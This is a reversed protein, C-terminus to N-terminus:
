SELGFNLLEAQVAELRKKKGTLEEREAVVVPDEALYAACRASSNPGGIGLKSLLFEQLRNSFMTLFKDEIAMPVDDIVRKYAVKFYARVEAMVELEEEYMDPPRLKALDELTLSGYGLVALATLAQHEARRREEEDLEQNAELRRKQLVTSDSIRDELSKASSAAAGNAPAASKPAPSNSPAGAGFPSPQGFAPQAATAAPPSYQFAQPAQGKNGTNQTAGGHSSGPRKQAAPAASTSGNAGEIKRRKMAPEQIADANGQRASKYMSLFKDKSAQYYHKNQTFPTKERDLIDKVREWAVEKQVELLAKVVQLMRGKLEHYREFRQQVLKSLTADFARQVDVFCKRCDLEWSTQFERILSVKAGYPVNGPLEKGLSRSIHRRVDQLTVPARPAPLEADSDTLDVFDARGDDDEDDSEAAAYRALGARSSPPSPSPVFPPATGRIDHKFIAYTRRNQQVLSATDPGGDVYAAVDRCVDTVLTLVFSTPEATIAPPLEKLRQLCATLQAAAESRLKPMTDYIIQTLLRSLNAVLQATGFRQRQSSKSWPSHERFFAMEAERAEANSIGRAREDDDPQRTCYYGHKLPFRRGEIVDLWNDRAKTSGPPLTDPKTMVGITRLGSPDVQKALQMAKQNEIDDSMPLTVLILCNGKIHSKVLDEVLQVTEASANQIIGPLDVFALDTMEPGSIDMCVANRSFELANKLGRLEELSMGVFKSSVVAPNLVAAQARRLMLEVQAKDHLAPGFKQESVIECPRGDAAFEERISIQCTWPQAASALRCEMPCRTCTGADRPVNIGSIAEVLSSKGASQNGIVAVRPLDLETQAGIARLQNILALHQKRRQAYETDTGTLISGSSAQGASM